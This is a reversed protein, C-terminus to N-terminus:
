YACARGACYGQVGNCVCDDDYMCRTSPCSPGGPGGGGGGGGFTYSCANGSCTATRATPCAAQCEQDTSCRVSLCVLGSLEGEDALADSQVQQSCVSPEAVALSTGAPETASATSAAFTLLLAVSWSLSHRRSSM